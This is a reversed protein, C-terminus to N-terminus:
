ATEIERAFCSGMTFVADSRRLKPGDYDPTVTCYGDFVRLAAPEFKGPIPNNGAAHWDSRPNEKRTTLAERIGVRMSRSHREPRVFCALVTPWACAGSEVLIM